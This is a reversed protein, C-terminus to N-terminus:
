GAEKDSFRLAHCDLLRIRQILKRPVAPPLPNARQSATANASVAVPLSYNRSSTMFNSIMQLTPGPLDQPAMHGAGSVTLLDLNVSGSQFMEYFGVTMPLFNGKQFAWKFRKSNQIQTIPLSHVFNSAGMFNALTDSDGSYILINLAYGSNLIWQFLPTTDPYNIVYGNGLLNATRTNM